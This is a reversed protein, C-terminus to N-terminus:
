HRLHELYPNAEAIWASRPAEIVLDVIRGEALSRSKQKLFVKL